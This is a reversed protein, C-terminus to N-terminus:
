YTFKIGTRIISVYLPRSNHIWENKLEANRSSSQYSETNPRRLGVYAGWNDSYLVSPLYLRRQSRKTFFCIDQRQGFHFCSNQTTCGLRTVATVGNDRFWVCMCNYCLLYIGPTCLHKASPRWQLYNEM